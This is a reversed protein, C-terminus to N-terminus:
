EKKKLQGITVKLQKQWEKFAIKQAEKPAYKLQEFQKM